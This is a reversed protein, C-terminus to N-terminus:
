RLQSWGEAEHVEAILSALLSAGHENLHIHDEHPAKNLAYASGYAQLTSRFSTGLAAARAAFYTEAERDASEAEQRTAHYVLLVHGHQKKLLRLLEDLAEEVLRRREEFTVHVAPPRPMFKRRALEIVATFVDDLAGHPDHLRYPILDPDQGPLDFRDHSSLVLVAAKAPFQGFRRCFMLINEPGWSSAAISNVILNPNRSSRRLLSQLQSPVTATQDVDHNGYIVSDGFISVFDGPAATEKDFDASRMSYRNIEISNGFRHYSRNPQLYYEVQPDVSVVPPQGFGLLRCVVELILLVSALAVPAGILRRLSISQDAPM